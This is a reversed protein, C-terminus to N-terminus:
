AASSALACLTAPAILVRSSSASESARSPTPETVGPERVSAFTCTVVRAAGLGADADGGGRMAIAEGGGGEAEGM